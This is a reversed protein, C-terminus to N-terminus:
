VSRQDRGRSPIYTGVGDGCSIKIHKKIYPCLKCTAQRISQFTPDTQTATDLNSVDVLYRYHKITTLVRSFRVIFYCLIITLLFLIGFIFSTSQSLSFIRLCMCFSKSAQFANMIIFAFALFEQM